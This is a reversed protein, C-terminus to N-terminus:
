FTVTIAITQPNPRGSPNEEIVVLRGTTTSPKAFTIRGSYNVPTPVMWEEATTLAGTGLTKGNSDQIEITAAQAEFVTWRCANNSNDVIAKVSLPSSVKADARPSTIRMAQCTTQNPTASPNQSISPSPQTTVTNPVPTPVPNTIRNKQSMAFGALGVLLLFAVIFYLLKNM